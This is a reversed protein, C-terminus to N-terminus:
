DYAASFVPYEVTMRPRRMPEVAKTLYGYISGSVDRVTKEKRNAPTSPHTNLALIAASIAVQALSFPVELLGEEDGSEEYGSEYTVVLSHQGYYALGQILLVGKEANIAYSNAPLRYEASLAGYPNGSAPASYVVLTDSQVFGNTLRYEGSDAERTCFSDITSAHSLKTELFSEIIPYSIDLMAEANAKTGDNMVVGAVSLVATASALRM